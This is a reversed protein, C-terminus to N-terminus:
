VESLLESNMNETETGSRFTSESFTAHSIASPHSIMSVVLSLPSLSGVFHVPRLPLINLRADARPHISYQISSYTYYCAGVSIIVYHSLSLMRRHILHYFCIYSMFSTSFLRTPRLLIVSFLFFRNMNLESRAKPMSPIQM